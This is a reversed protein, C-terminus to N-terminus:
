STNDIVCYWDTGDYTCRMTDGSGPTWDSGANGKLGSATFDITTNADNIIVFITQGDIGDDFDTITTAGTNATKFNLGGKVSPTDDADTFSQFELIMLHDNIYDAPLWSFIDKSSTDPWNILVGPGSSSNLVDAATRGITDTALDLLEGFGAEWTGANDTCYYFFKDGTWPGAGVLATAGDVFSDFNTVTGTLSYTSGNGQTTTTQKVYDILYRAM